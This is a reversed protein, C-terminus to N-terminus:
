PRIAVELVGEGQEAFLDYADVIRDLPFSHAVLERFPFRGARV